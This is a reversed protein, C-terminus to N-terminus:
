CDLVGPMMAEMTCAQADLQQRHIAARAQDVQEVHDHVARRLVPLILKTELWSHPQIDGQAPM